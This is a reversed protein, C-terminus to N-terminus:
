TETVGPRDFRLTFCLGCNQIGHIAGFGTVLVDVDGLHLSVDCLGNVAIQLIELDFHGVIIDSPAAGASLRSRRVELSRENKWRGTKAECNSISIQCTCGVAATECPCPELSMSVSTSRAVHLERLLAGPRSAHSFLPSCGYMIISLEYKMSITPKNYALSM